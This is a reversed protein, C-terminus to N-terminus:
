SPSPALHTSAGTLSKEEEPENVELDAPNPPFSGPKADVPGPEARLLESIKALDSVKSARLVSM